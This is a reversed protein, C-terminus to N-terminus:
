NCLLGNNKDENVKEIIGAQILDFIIDVFHEIGDSYIPPRDYTFKRKINKKKHWGWTSVKVTKTNIRIQYETYQRGEVFCSKDAYYAKYYYVIEGTDSDYKPKFGFKRLEELNVDDKVKLM